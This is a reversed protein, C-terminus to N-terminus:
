SGSALFITSVELELGTLVLSTVTGEEAAFSFLRYRNNEMRYVEVSRTSPDVIWYERVAFQEYIDKKIGKDRFATDKSLIEIILDPAGVIGEEHIVFNREHSIFLLDPMIGANHDDFYVDYPACFIEGLNKEEAYTGLDIMLDGLTRQHPTHPSSRRVIEGDLLEYLGTDGEPIDMDMLDAYTMKKSLVEAEM